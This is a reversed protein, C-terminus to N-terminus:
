GKTLLVLVVFIVPVLAMAPMAVGIVGFAIGSVAWAVAALAIIAFIIADRKFELAAAADPYNANVDTKQAALTAHQSMDM